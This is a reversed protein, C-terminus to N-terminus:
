IPFQSNSLATVVRRLLRALCQLVLLSPYCLCTCFLRRFLEGPTRSCGACTRCRRRRLAQAHWTCVPPLHRQAHCHPATDGGTGCQQQMCCLCNGQASIRSALENGMASQFSTCPSRTRSLKTRATLSVPCPTAQYSSPHPPRRARWNLARWRQCRRLPHLPRCACRFLM